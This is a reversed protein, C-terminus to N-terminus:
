SPTNLCPFDDIKGPILSVFLPIICYIVETFAFISGKESFFDMKNCKEYFFQCGGKVIGWNLAIKNFLFPGIM